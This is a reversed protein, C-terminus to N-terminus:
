GRRTYIVGGNTAVNNAFNIVANGGFRRSILINHQIYLGEMIDM